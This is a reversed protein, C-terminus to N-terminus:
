KVYVVGIVDPNALNYYAWVGAETFELQYIGGKGVSKEQTLGNYIPVGEFEDSAIRMANGSTNVFRLTEGRYLEVVKPVFGRDTLSVISVHRGNELVRTRRYVSSARASVPSQLTAAVDSSLEDATKNSPSDRLSSGSKDRSWLAAGLLVLVVVGLIILSNKTSM